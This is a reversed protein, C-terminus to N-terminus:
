NSNWTVCGLRGQGGARHRDQPGGRGAATKAPELEELLKAAVSHQLEGAACAGRHLPWDQPACKRLRQVGRQRRGKRGKALIEGQPVALHESLGALTYPTQRITVGGTKLTVREATADCAAFYAEIKGAQSKENPRNWENTSREQSADPELDTGAAAITLCM